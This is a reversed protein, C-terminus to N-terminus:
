IKTLKLWSYKQRPFLDESEFGCERCIDRLAELDHHIKSVGQNDHKNKGIWRDGSYDKSSETARWFSTVFVASPHSCDRFNSLMIRIDDKGCHSWISSALCFDFKVGFVSCDWNENRDFSPQKEEMLGEWLVKSKGMDLRENWPEIGYYNNPELYDIFWVGSRLWGCGYDLIKSDRSLGLERFMKLQNRGSKMFGKPIEPLRELEALHLTNM